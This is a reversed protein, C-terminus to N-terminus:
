NKKIAPNNLVLRRISEEVDEDKVTTDMNVKPNKYLIGVYSFGLRKAVDEVSKLNSEKDDIFIVKDFLTAGSIHEIFSEFVSGKDMGDTVVLGDVFIPNFTRDGKRFSDLNLRHINGWFPAFFIQNERLADTLVQEYPTPSGGVPALTLVVAKSGRGSLDSLIEHIGDEVTKYGTRTRLTLFYPREEDHSMKGCYKQWYKKFISKNNVQLMEETPELVVGNLDFMVLTTTSAESFYQKAEHLSSVEIFSFALYINLVFVILYRLVLM